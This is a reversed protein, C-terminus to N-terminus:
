RADDVVFPRHPGVTGREVEVDGLPAPDVQDDPEDHQQGADPHEAAVDQGAGDADDGGDDAEDHLKKKMGAYGSHARMTTVISTSTIQASVAWPLSIRWGQARLAAVSQRGLRRGVRCRCALFDFTTCTSRRKFTLEAPLTGTCRRCPALPPHEAGSLLPHHAGVRRTLWTPRVSTGM